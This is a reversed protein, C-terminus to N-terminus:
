KGNPNTVYYVPLILDDYGAKQERELFRQFEARCAPSNFFVPTVIPILFTAADLSEEIRQQWQQGWGIDKRDQFIHFPRGTQMRMERALRNCFESLRGDEYRDDLRVYSLIAVPELNM